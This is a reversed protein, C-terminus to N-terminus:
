LNEIFYEWRKRIFYDRFEGRYGHRQSPLILLDFDKGAKILAEALKFTASPNVNEDLGGHTLLLKGKLNPAMTINSQLHYVSDVPWGMYM